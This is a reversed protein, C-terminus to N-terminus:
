HLAPRFARGEATRMRIDLVRGITPALDVQRFLSGSSERSRFGPGYFVVPVRSVSASGDDCGLSGDPSLKANRGHDVALVLSTRRAREPTSRMAKLLEGLEADLRKLVQLADSHRRAATSADSLIVTLFVPDLEQLVFAACRMARLDVEGPGTPLVKLESALLRTLSQITKPRVGSPANAALAEALPSTSSPAPDAAIASGSDAKHSLGHSLIQDPALVTPGFAPGFDPHSSTCFIAPDTPGSVILWVQEQSLGREKRLCEFLTPSPWPKTPGPQPDPQTGTLMVRTAAKSELAEVRCQTTSVGQAFVMKFNPLHDQNVLDVTRVGGGLVVLVVHHDDQAQLSL